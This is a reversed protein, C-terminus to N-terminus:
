AARSDDSALRRGHARKGFLSCRYAGESRAAAVAEFMMAAQGEYDVHTIGLELAAVADFLRGANSTLPSVRDSNLIQVVM